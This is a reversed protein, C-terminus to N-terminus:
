RRQGVLRNGHRHGGLAEHVLTADPAHGSVVEQGDQSPDGGEPDVDSEVGGGAAGQPSLGGEGEDIM